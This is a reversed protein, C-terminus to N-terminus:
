GNLQIIMAEAKKLEKEADDFNLKMIKCYASMLFRVFTMQPLFAEDQDSDWKSEHHDFEPMKWNFPGQLDALKKEM